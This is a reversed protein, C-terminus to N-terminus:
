RQLESKPDPDFLGSEYLIAWKIACSRDPTSPLLCREDPETFCVHDAHEGAIKACREAVLRMQHQVADIAEQIKGAEVDHAVIHVVCELTKRDIMETKM